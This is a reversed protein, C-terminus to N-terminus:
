DQTINMRDELVKIREELSARSNPLYGRKPKESLRKQWATFSGENKGHGCSCNFIYSLGMSGAVIPDGVERGCVPCFNGVYYGM